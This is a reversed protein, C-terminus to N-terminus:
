DALNTKKLAISYINANSDVLNWSKQSNFVNQHSQLDYPARSGQIEKRHHKLESLQNNTLNLRFMKLTGESTQSDIGFFLLSNNLYGLFAHNLLNMGDDCFSSKEYIIEIRTIRLKNDITKKIEFVKICCCSERSAPKRQRPTTAIIFNNQNCISVRGKSYEANQIRQSSEEDPTNAFVISRRLLDVVAVLGTSTLLALKSQKEGFLKFDAIRDRDGLQFRMLVRKVFLGFVAIEHSGNREMLVIVRKLGDSFKVFRARFDKKKLSLWQCGNESNEEKRYIKAEDAIFYANVSTSYGLGTSHSVGQGQYVYDGDRIVRICKKDTSVLCHDEKKYCVVTRGGGIAGEEFQADFLSVEFNLRKLESQTIKDLISDIRSIEQDIKSKFNFALNTISDKLEILPNPKDQTNASTRPEIEQEQSLLLQQLHNIHEKTIKKLTNKIKALQYYVEPM